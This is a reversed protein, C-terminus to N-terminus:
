RRDVVSEVLELSRPAMAGPVPPENILGVDLDGTDPTVHLSGRVLVALDSVDVDGLSPGCRRCPPEELGRQTRVAQGALDGGVQGSRQQPHDVRHQEVDRMVGLLVGVVADLGVM